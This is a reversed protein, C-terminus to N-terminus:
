PQCRAQAFQAAARFRRSRAALACADPLRGAAELCTLQLDVVAASAALRDLAEVCCGYDANEFCTRARAVAAKLALGGRRPLRPGKASAAAAYTAARADLDSARARNVQLRHHSERGDAAVLKVEYPGPWLVADELPTRGLLVGAVYVQSEVESTVSLRGWRQSARKPRVAVSLQAGPAVKIRKVWPRHRPRIVRVLHEGPALGVGGRAEATTLLRGDVIVSDNGAVHLVLSGDGDPPHLAPAPAPAPPSPAPAPAPAQSTERTKARAAHGAAADGPARGRGSGPGLVAVTVVAAVVALGAVAIVELWRRGRSGAPLEPEPAPAAREDRRPPLPMTSGAKWVNTEAEDDYEGPAGVDEVGSLDLLGDSTLAPAREAEGAVMVIAVGDVGPDKVPEPAPAAPGAAQPPAVLEEKAITGVAVPAVCQVPPASKATDPAALGESPAPRTRPIELTHAGADARADRRPRRAAPERRTRARPIVTPSDDTVAEPEESAAAALSIEASLVADDLDLEISGEKSRASRDRATDPAALSPESVEGLAERLDLELERGQGRRGRRADVTPDTRPRGVARDAAIRVGSRSPAASDPGPGSITGRVNDGKALVGRVLRGLQVQTSVLREERMLRELDALLDDAQQYREGVERSLARLIIQDLLRPVGPRVESPPPVRGKCVAQMTRFDNDRKFLRRGCLMEHLVTGLSFIDVRHDFPMGMCQEPSLYAAKGRLVGVQTHHVQDAARAVGFDVLKVEGDQSIMINEPSVDRHIIGLRRGEEDTIAHAHALAEAVSCAIRLAHEIPMLDPHLGRVLQSVHLGDIYEMAIFYQGDAEGFDYVHAINPHSLRSVIRAEDFFLELFSPDQGISPLICKLVVRRATASASSTSLDRALFIEAMGGIAIRRIVEYRAIRIGARELTERPTRQAM